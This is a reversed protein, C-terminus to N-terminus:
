HYSFVMSTQVFQVDGGVPYSVHVKMIKYFTKDQVVRLPNEDVVYNVEIDVKYYNKSTEITESYSAFDDIDNYNPYIEGSEAQLPNSSFGSPLSAPVGNALVGDFYPMAKAEEIFRQAISLATLRYENQWVDDKNQMMTMTASYSIVGFLMTAGLVLFMERTGM